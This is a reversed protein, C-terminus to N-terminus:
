GNIDTTNGAGQFSYYRMCFIANLGMYRYVHIIPMQIDSNALAKTKQPEACLLRPFPISLSQATHFVACGTMWHACSQGAYMFQRVQAQPTTPLAAARDLRGSATMARRERNAWERQEDFGEQL